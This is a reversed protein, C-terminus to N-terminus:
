YNDEMVPTALYLRTMEQIEDYTMVVNVNVKRGNIKNYDDMMDTYSYVVYMDEEKWERSVTASIEDLLQNVIGAREASQIKGALMGEFELSTHASVNHSAMIKEMKEKYLVACEMRDYLVIEGVIYQSIESIGDTIESEVTIIKILTQANRAKKSLSLWKKNEEEQETIEYQKTLGIQTAINELIEKHEQITKYEGELRGGSRVTSKAEMCNTNNFAEIIQEENEVNMNRILQIGAAVWLIGVFVFFLKRM